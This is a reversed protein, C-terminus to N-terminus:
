DKLLYELPHVGDRKARATDIATQFTAVRDDIVSEILEVYKRATEITEYHFGRDRFYEYEKRASKLKRQLAPMKCKVLKDVTLAM